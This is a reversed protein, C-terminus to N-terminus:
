GCSESVPAPQRHFDLAVVDSYRYSGRSCWYFALCLEYTVEGIRASDFASRTKYARKNFRLRDPGRGNLTRRQASVFATDNTWSRTETIATTPNSDLLESRDSRLVSFGGLSFFPDYRVAQRIEAEVASVSRRGGTM